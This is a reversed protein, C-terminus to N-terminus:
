QWDALESTRDIASVLVNPTAQQVRAVIREAEAFDAAGPVVEADPEFTLWTTGLSEGMRDAALLSVLGGRRFGARYRVGEHVTSVVLRNSLANAVAAGENLPSGPVMMVLFLNYLQPHAVVRAGARPQIPLPEGDYAVTFAGKRWLTLRVANPSPAQKAINAVISEVFRAAPNSDGTASGIYM